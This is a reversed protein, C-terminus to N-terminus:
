IAVLGPCATSVEPAARYVVLLVGICVCFYDAFFAPLSKEAEAFHSIEIYIPGHHGHKIFHTQKSM